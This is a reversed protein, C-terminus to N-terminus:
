SRGDNGPPGMRVLVADIKETLRDIARTLKDESELHRRLPTYEEAIKLRLKALEDENKENKGNLYILGWLVIGFAPLVVLAVIAEFAEFSIGM